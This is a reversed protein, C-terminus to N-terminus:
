MLSPWVAVVSDPPSACRTLSAFSSERAVGAAREVDEVLRGGAQVEVVDLVQEGHQVAQAVVAVRDHHDLVVEVHDLGGVPDISRPGSPPWPPPSIMASPVGSCIARAAINM